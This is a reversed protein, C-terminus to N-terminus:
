ITPGAASRVRPWFCPKAGPHRMETPRSALHRKLRQEVQDAFGDRADGNEGRQPGLACALSPVFISRFFLARRTALAEKDRDREYQNWACDSIESM